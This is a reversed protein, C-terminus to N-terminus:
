AESDVSGWDILEGCDPCFKHVFHYDSDEDFYDESVANGCRCEFVGDEKDGILTPIVKQSHSANLLEAVEATLLSISLNKEPLYISMTQDRTKMLLKCPHTQGKMGMKQHEIFACSGAVEHGDVPKDFEESYARTEGDSMNTGRQAGQASSDNLEFCEQATETM